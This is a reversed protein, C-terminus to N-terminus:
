RPPYLKSEQSARELVVNLTAGALLVVGAAYLWTVFLLIGGLVGYVGYRGANSTYFVFVTQLAVLGIATLVVGPLAHRITVPVPPMVYYVPLLLLGLGVFLGLGGLIRPFPLTSLVIGRALAAAASMLATGLALTAVVILADKANESLGDSEDSDYIRNFARDLGRFFGSSM